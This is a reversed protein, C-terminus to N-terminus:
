FPIEDLEEDPDPEPPPVPKGQKAARRAKLWDAIWAGARRKEDEPVPEVPVFKDGFRDRSTM